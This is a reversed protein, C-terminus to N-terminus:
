TKELKVNLWLFWMTKRSNQVFLLFSLIFQFQRKIETTNFNKVYFASQFKLAGKISDYIM